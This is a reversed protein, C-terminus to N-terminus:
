PAAVRQLRILVYSRLVLGLLIAFLGVGLMYCPPEMKFVPGIRAEWLGGGLFLISGGGVLGLLTREIREDIAFRYNLLALAINLFGLAFFYFRALDYAYMRWLYGPSQNTLSESFNQTTTVFGFDFLFGAVLLLLGLLAHLKSSTM